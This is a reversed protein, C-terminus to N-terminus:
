GGAAKPEDMPRGTKLTPVKSLAALFARDNMGALAAVGARLLESKKTPRRLHAAREKLGTLVLYEGKPITFSDRVLKTRGEVARVVESAPKALAPRRRTLEMKAQSKPIAATKGADATKKGTM